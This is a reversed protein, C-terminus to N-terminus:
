QTREMIFKELVPRPIRLVRYKGGGLDVVGPRNAFRRIVTDESVKLVEAVDSVTLLEM